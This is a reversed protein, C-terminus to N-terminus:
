KLVGLAVLLMKVFQVHTVADDPGFRGDGYGGVIGQSVAWRIAGYAYSHGAGLDSFTAATGTLSDATDRGLVARAIFTVATARNLIGDPDLDPKGSTGPTGEIVRIATLVDIAEKREATVTDADDWSNLNAAQAMTTPLVILSFAMALALAVCLLKRLKSM